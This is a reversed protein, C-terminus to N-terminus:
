TVLQRLSREYESVSEDYDAFSVEAFSIHTYIIEILSSIKLMLKEVEGFPVKIIEKKSLQEVDHHSLQKNRAKKIPLDIYEDYISDIACAFLLNEGNPFLQDYNDDMPIKKCIEQLRFLSWNKNSKGKSPDFLKALEILLERWLAEYATHLFINTSGHAGFVKGYAKVAASQGRIERVFAILIACCEGLEKHEDTMSIDKVRCLLDILEFSLDRVDSM